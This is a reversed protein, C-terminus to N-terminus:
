GLRETDAGLDALIQVALGEGERVLGLLLHEPGVGAAGRRDAEKRAVEFGRKVRPTVCFSGGPPRSRM